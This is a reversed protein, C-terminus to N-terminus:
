AELLRFRVLGRGVSAKGGLQLSRHTGVAARFAEAMAGADAAQKPERSPGVGILGWLVSEAPLNEEYWLAGQKVTGSQPDIRVRARVETGTEALFVFEDDALVVFRPDFHREAGADGPFLVERFHKAWAQASADEQADIDLDDLVLKGSRGVYLSSGVGVRAHGPVLDPLRPTERGLLKLDDAYRRLVFPCTAWAMVGALSRVPLLLLRADGIALAGAFADDNSRISEPGFLATAHPRDSCTARLVGKIASGPVFPLQTARERAIPLDVTGIAQGIGVHLASLAHLHFALSKM